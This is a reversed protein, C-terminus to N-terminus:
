NLRNMHQSLVSVCLVFLYENSVAHIENWNVRNEHPQHVTSSLLQKWADCIRVCNTGDMAYDNKSDFQRHTHSHTRHTARVQEQCQWGNLHIWKSKIQKGKQPQTTDTPQLMASAVACKLAFYIFILSTTLEDWNSFHTILNATDDSHWPFQQMIYLKVIMKNNIIIIWIIYSWLQPSADVKEKPTKKNKPKTQNPKRTCEFTCTFYTKFLYILLKWKSM